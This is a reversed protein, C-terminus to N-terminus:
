SDVHISKQMFVFFFFNLLPFHARYSYFTARSILNDWLKCIRGAFNVKPVIGIEFVTQASGM